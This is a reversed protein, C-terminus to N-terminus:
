TKKYGTKLSYFNLAALTNKNAEAIKVSRDKKTVRIKPMVHCFSKYNTKKIPAHFSRFDEMRSKGVNVMKLISEAINDDLAVGSSINVLGEKDVDKGLPNGYEQQIVGAVQSVKEQM